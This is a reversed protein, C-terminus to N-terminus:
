CTVLLTFDSSPVFSDSGFYLDCDRYSAIFPAKSNYLTNMKVCASTSSVQLRHKGGPSRYLNAANLLTHFLSRDDCLNTGEGRNPRLGTPLATCYSLLIKCQSWIIERLQFIVSGKLAMWHSDPGFSAFKNVLLWLIM